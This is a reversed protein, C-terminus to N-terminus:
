LFFVKRELVDCYKVLIFDLWSFVCVIDVVFLLMGVEFFFVFKILLKVFEVFKKKDVVFKKEEVLIFNVWVM